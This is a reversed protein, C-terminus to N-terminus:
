RQGEITLNGNGLREGHLLLSELRAGTNYYKYLNGGLGVSKLKKSIDLARIREENSLRGNSDLDFKDKLLNICEEYSLGRRSDFSQPLRSEIYNVIDDGVSARTAYQGYSNCGPGLGAALTTLGGLYLIVKPVTKM